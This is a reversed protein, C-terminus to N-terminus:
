AEKTFNAIYKTVPGVYVMVVAYLKGATTPLTPVADFWLVTGPFTPTFGGAGTQVILAYRFGSIPNTFTLACNGTLTLYQDNGNDWDITKSTGSNGTDYLTAGYQGAVKLAAHADAAVNIGLKAVQPTSSTPLSAAKWGWGDAQASDRTYVDGDTGGTAIHSDDWANRSVDASARNPKTTKTRHESTGTTTIPPM